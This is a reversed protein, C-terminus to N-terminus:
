GLSAKFQSALQIVGLSGAGREKVEWTSPNCPTFGNGACGAKSTTILVSAGQMLQSPLPRM